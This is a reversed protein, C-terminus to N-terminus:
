LVVRKLGQKLLTVDFNILLGLRLGSLKLYTLLQATHVPALAEVAKVEVIVVGEVILDTQYGAELRLEGYVVPLPRQREIRLGRTQLEHALCHEYVSELLGPGLTRHVTLAADVVARAVRDVGAPVAQHEQHTM